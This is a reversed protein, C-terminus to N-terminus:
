SSDGRLSKSKRIPLLGSQGLKMATTRNGITFGKHAQKAQTLGQFGQHHGLVGRPVTVLGCKHTL